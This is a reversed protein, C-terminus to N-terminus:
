PVILNTFLEPKRGHHDVMSQATERALDFRNAQLYRSVIQRCARNVFDDALRNRQNLTLGSATWQVAPPDPAQQSFFEDLFTWAYPNMEGLLMASLFDLVAEDRHQASANVYGAILFASGSNPALRIQYDAAQQAAPFNELGVQVVALISYIEPQGVDYILTPDHERALRLERSAQNLALDIEAARELHVLSKRFWVLQTARDEGV